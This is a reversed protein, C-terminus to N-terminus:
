ASPIQSTELPNESPDARCYGRMVEGLAALGDAADDRSAPMGLGDFHQAAAALLAGAGPFNYARQINHWDSTSIRLTPVPLCGVSTMTVQALSRQFQGHLWPSRSNIQADRVGENESQRMADAIDVPAM